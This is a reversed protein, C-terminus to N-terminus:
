PDGTLPMVGLEDLQAANKIRNYAVRRWENRAEYGISEWEVPQGTIRMVDRYTYFALMSVAASLQPDRPHWAPSMEPPTGFEIVAYSKKM